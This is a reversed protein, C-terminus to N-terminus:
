GGVKGWVAQLRADRGCNHRYFHYKLGHKRYFDQHYAEAPWFPGAPLILTAIPRHLAAQAAAKEAEAAEKQRSDAVFIATRYSDGRDCFQGESDTPDVTRFFYRALQRYSVKSPDFTVRVSEYHGTGGASVQRYTPNRLTGGSFGSVAAVVGPVKEFDSETCWFCGGAFVATERASPARPDGGGKPVSPQYDASCGALAVLPLLLRGNRM